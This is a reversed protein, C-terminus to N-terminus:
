PVSGFVEAIMDVNNCSIMICNQKMDDASQKSLNFNHDLFLNTKYDLTM